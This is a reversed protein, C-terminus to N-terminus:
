IWKLIIGGNWETSHDELQRMGEPSRALVRYISREEGM